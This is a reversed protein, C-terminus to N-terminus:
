SDLACAAVIVARFNILNSIKGHFSSLQKWRVNNNNCLIPLGRGTKWYTYIQFLKIYKVCMTVSLWLVLMISSDRNRMYRSM